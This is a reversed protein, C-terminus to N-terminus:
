PLTAREERKAVKEVSLCPSQTERRAAEANERSASLRSQTTMTHKSFGSGAPCMPIQTFVGRWSVRTYGSEPVTTAHLAVTATVTLPPEASLIAM